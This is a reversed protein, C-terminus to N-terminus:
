GLLTWSMAASFIQANQNNVIESQRSISEATQRRPLFSLLTLKATLDINALNNDEFAVPDWNLSLFFAAIVTDLIM